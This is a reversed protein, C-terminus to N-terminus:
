KFIILDIILMTVLHKDWGPMVKLVNRGPTPVRSPDTDAKDLEDFSM